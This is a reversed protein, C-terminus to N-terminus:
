LYIVICAQNIMLLCVTATHRHRFYQSNNHKVGQTWASMVSNDTDVFYLMLTM